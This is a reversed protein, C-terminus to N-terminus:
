KFAPQTYQVFDDYKFSFVPFNHFVLFSNYYKLIGDVLHSCRALLKLDHINTNLSHLSDVDSSINIYM